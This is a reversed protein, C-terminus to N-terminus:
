DCLALLLGILLGIGVAPVGWRELRSATDGSVVEVPVKTLELVQNTTSIELMRTLSNKRATSMVIHHCHLRHAESVIVKACEGTKFITAHPISHQQLLSCAPALAEESKELYWANLEGRSLFKGIYRSFKTQVNLLHIEMASDEMFESIVQRVAFLSNPSGDVPILIRKM